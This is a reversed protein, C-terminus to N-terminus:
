VYDKSFQKPVGFVDTALTGIETKNNNNNM